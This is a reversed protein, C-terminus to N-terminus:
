VSRLIGTRRPVGNLQALQIRTQIRALVNKLQGLSNGIAAVFLFEALKNLWSFM